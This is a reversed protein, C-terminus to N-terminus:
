GVQAAAGDGGAMGGLGPGQQPLGLLDELTDARVLGAGHEGLQVGYPGRPLGDRRLATQDPPCSPPAPPPRSDPRERGARDNKGYGLHDDLEGELAGIVVM